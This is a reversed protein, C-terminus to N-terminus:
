VPFASSFVKAVAQWGERLLARRHVQHSFIEWFYAPKGERADKLGDRIGFLAAMTPQLLLRLTLPGSERGILDEWMRTFVEDM